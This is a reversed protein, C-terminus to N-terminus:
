KSLNSFRSKQAESVQALGLFIPRFTGNILAYHNGLVIRELVEDLYHPTKYRCKNVIEDSNSRKEVIERRELYLLAFAVPGPIDARFELHEYVYCSAM